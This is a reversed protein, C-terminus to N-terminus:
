NGYVKCEYFSAYGGTPTVATVTIRVYQGTATFNDTTDGNTTNGTKDVITTYTVDNSSTEIKYKYARSSSSYWNIVVQSLSHSAGLDVRWWQPYSPGSAAWRTTLNGDNGKAVENGTQFSSATVPQAQSLLVGGTPIASVQTSNGSEGSSNVASVVYYYTTGNILGTNTYSTTTPSTITTYPGGSVTARKVNYSAAGTTAAWNLTVQANGATATLGTPVSALTTASGQTSNAGEGGGNVASMVYYYTTGSSLGTNNYTTGTVGTAVTTYPGGNVTARKVNYSTAGTSATWSLNIQSSSAATATLGTPAAPPLPLTTASAQTSNASEGSGNVASVVYYYTTSTALGTDSYNTATVGTAVTTYPGGSVTARKVNYSTAGSSAAWSLNIQSSSAAMATLGTPAAPPSGLPAYVNFEAIGWYSGASNGTQTVRIYRATQTAFTITTVPNSGTGTAVPSGWNVGDSSVNVQYGIPYDGPWSGQDLVIQFFTQASGMDVQFWEGPVQLEVTSWRTTTNGDIAKAAASSNPSASVAWGSRNLVNSPQASVQASNGSEGLANVASVVYYYTTGNAATVDTYSATTPSAVTTYPGGNVDARKVNYSTAGASATWSLGVQNNGPTATLGTPTAPPLALPTASVQTSNGSEGLANVASAVYYYTTGNVATTDTYSATTPSAVTTYPGGSVPARKVNYSTASSSATWSLVVVNNGSTATLGTPAPPPASALLWWTFNVGGNDFVIRITHYSSAYTGYAGFDYTTWAQWGGTNPLTQSPQAVGDIVLHATCGSNPTAVRILFHPSGNLPANTWELWEGPQIWGVDFGGGVDSTSEIAINGNRYFNVKGNGGNAGGYWDCGEAEFLLTNPFPNRSYKRLINLRQNPYDYLTNTYGLPTGNADINRARWMAADEEADTFGECLTVLAGAGVTGSLGTEFLQGHNPDLYGSQGPHQFEPCAVGVSLGNWNTLTYSPGTPGAIFWGQLGDLVGANTCTTDHKTTAWDDIIIPNFGFDRQCCQRVYTLARSLNGQTNTMLLPGSSWIMILPRGNIKFRNADPVTQYFVKYNYDYIFKWNNTDSLDLPTTYGFGNGISQNYQACWSAANDDFLAFQLTSTLGRANVAAVLPAFQSPPNNTNPWSGTCNPCVFDVGAQQLQELWVGWTPNNTDYQSPWNPTYLPLNYNSYDLPGTLVPHYQYGCTVGVYQGRAQNLFLLTVVFVVALAPIVSMTRDIKLWLLQCSGKIVKAFKTKM